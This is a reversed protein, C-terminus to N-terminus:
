GLSVGSSSINVFHGGYTSQIGTSDLNVVAGSYNANISTADLVITGVSNYDITISTPTTTITAVAGGNASTIVFQGLTLNTSSTNAPVGGESVSVVKNGLSDLTEVMLTNGSGDRFSYQRVRADVAPLTAGSTPEGALVVGAAVDGIVDQLEYQGNSSKAFSRDWGFFEYMRGGVNAATHQGIDSFREWNRAVVRVIDDFKSLFMMALPSAKLLASGNALMAFIGGGDTTYVLDGATFDSPKNPNGTYGNRMNTANGADVGLGSGSVNNIDNRAVGARPLCGLIVPYTLSTSIVVQDGISPSFHMGATGSGGTPLLWMVSDFYQGKLTQVSCTFRIPDVNTVTGEMFSADYKFPSSLMATM